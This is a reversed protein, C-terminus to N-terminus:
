RQVTTAMVALYWGLALAFPFVQDRDVAYKGAYKWENGIRQMVQVADGGNPHGADPGIHLHLHVEADSIAEIQTLQCV